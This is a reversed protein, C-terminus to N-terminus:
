QTAAGLMEDLAIQGEEPSSVFVPRYDIGWLTIAILRAVMMLYATAGVVILGSPVSRLRGTRLLVQFTNGPVKRLTNVEVWVYFPHNSEAELFQESKIICDVLELATMDGSFQFHLVGPAGWTIDYPM